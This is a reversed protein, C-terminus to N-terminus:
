NVAPMKVVASVRVKGRNPPNVFRLIARSLRPLASRSQSPYSVETDTMIRFPYPLPSRSGWTVWRWLYGLPGQTYHRLWLASLLEQIILIGAALLVTATWSTSHPLDLILGGILMLITAGIYNTLAMRGLPAFVAALAGRIPTHLALLVLSIYVGGLALGAVTSVISFGSSTIDRAQIILTPIAIAASVAFFVGM